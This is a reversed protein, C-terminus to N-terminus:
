LLLISPHLASAGSLSITKHSEWNKDPFALIKMLVPIHEGEPFSIGHLGVCINDQPKFPFEISSVILFM